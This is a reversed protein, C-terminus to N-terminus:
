RIVILLGTAIKASHFGLQFSGSAGNTCGSM